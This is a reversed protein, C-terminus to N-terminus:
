SPEEQGKKWRRAASWEVSEMAQEPVRGILLPERIPKKFAKGRIKSYEDHFRTWPSESVNTAVGGHVQHFTAEGLLVILESNDLECARIWIDLNALGGGPSQFREDFGGLETWMEKKMFLANSESIPAFWGNGSSAALVSIEFLRYPNEVWGVSELLQDETEADYGNRVSKMQVDSGLHFGLTGIIPRPHIRSAGVAGSLLGPSALRAGDILVGVLEGQATELGVNVAGVPSRSTFPLSVIQLNPAIAHCEDQDFPLTSGNDVVVIEYDEDLIGIQKSSSLSLITRPLERQM